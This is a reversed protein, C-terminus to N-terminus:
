RSNTNTMATQKHTIIYLSTTIFIHASHSCIFSVCVTLYHYLYCFLQLSRSHFHTLSTFSTCDSQSHGTIQRDCSWLGCNCLARQAWLYVCVFVVSSVIKNKTHSQSIPFLDLSRAENTMGNLSDTLLDFSSYLLRCFFWGAM